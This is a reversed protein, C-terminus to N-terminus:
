DPILDEAQLFGIIAETALTNGQENYHTDRLLYLGGESHGARFYPLLNLCPINNAACYDLLFRQPFEIDYRDLDLNYRQALELRLNEEVQYQDPHIILVYEADLIEVQKIIQDLLSVTEGWRSHASLDARSVELHRREVNLFGERSFTGAVGALKAEEEKRGQDRVVQLYYRAWQVVLLNHPRLSFLGPPPRVGIGLYKQVNSRSADFDNGVYFGHLVLDPEYRRGFQKLIALQDGPGYDVASLNVIEVPHGTESLQGELLYHYNRSGGVRGFSDSLGLIRFTGPKKHASIEHPWASSILSAFQSESRPVQPVLILSRFIVESLILGGVLSVALVAAKSFSVALRDPKKPSNLQWRRTQSSLIWLLVAPVLPSVSFLLTVDLFVDLLILGSTLVVALSFIPFQRLNLIFSRYRPAHLCVWWSSGVWLAMTLLLLFYSYSYRGLIV